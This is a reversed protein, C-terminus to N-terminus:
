SLPNQLSFKESDADHRIDHAFSRKHFGMFYSANESLTCNQAFRTTVGEDLAVPWVNQADGCGDRRSGDSGALDQPLQRGIRALVFEGGGQALDAADLSGKEHDVPDHIGVNPALRLDAQVLALGVM